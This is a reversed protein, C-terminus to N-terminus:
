CSLWCGCRLVGGNDSVIRALAGSKNHGTQEEDCPYAERLADVVLHHAPVHLREPNGKLYKLIVLVIQKKKM